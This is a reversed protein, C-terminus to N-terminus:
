GVHKDISLQAVCKAEVLAPHKECSSRWDHFIRQVEENREIQGYELDESHAFAGTNEKEPEGEIKEM